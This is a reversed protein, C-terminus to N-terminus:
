SLNVKITRMFLSLNCSCPIFIIHNNDLEVRLESSIPHVYSIQFMAIATICELNKFGEPTCILSFPYCMLSNQNNEMIVTDALKM